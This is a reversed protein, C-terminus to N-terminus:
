LLAASGGEREVSDTDVLTGYSDVTIAEVRDPDFSM